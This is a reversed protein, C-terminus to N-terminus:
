LWRELYDPLRAAVPGLEYEKDSISPSWGQPTPVAAVPQSGPHETVHAAGACRHSSLDGTVASQGRPGAVQSM